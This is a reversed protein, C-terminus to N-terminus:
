EKTFEIEWFGGSKDKGHFVMAEYLDPISVSIWKASNSSPDIFRVKDQDLYIRDLVCVHGWHDKADKDFLTPWDYCILVDKDQKSTESLYARFDDITKFKNILSWSMKLPINLKKFVKNPGYEAKGAQTGYGAPPRSGTRANYFYQLADNPAVLGMHYGILEAPQLPINHRLMVMQVCTPVCCWKQQTLPTYRSDKPVVDKVLIHDDPIWGPESYCEIWTENGIAYHVSRPKITLEDDKELEHVLGDVVVKLTGKIVKYTETTKEHYHPASIDIISIARSYEPHESTPEIECLIETPNDDPLSFIAKKPYKERLQNIVQKHNM